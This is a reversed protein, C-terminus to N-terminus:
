STCINIQDKKWSDKYVICNNQTLISLCILFSSWVYPNTTVIKLSALWHSQRMTVITVVVVWHEKGQIQQAGSNSRVCVLNNWKKPTKLVFEKCLFSRRWRRRKWRRLIEVESVIKKCFFMVCVIAITWVCM